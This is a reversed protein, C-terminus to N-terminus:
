NKPALLITEKAAKEVAAKSFPFLPTNGTAWDKFQDKYHPSAPNGSEGTPIVHRTLDWDGPTAIFRMSVASGVNPSAATGGSGNQALSEVAFQAGILPAATLPHSFNTKVFIGWNWDAENVTIKRSQAETRLSAFADKESARLLDKYSVFEKPLWEKPKEILLRDFFAAEYPLFLNKAQEVGFNAILIRNRFESRIRDAVLAAKSDANMRGDWNSLLKLTEESAAKQNVIEKALRSNIISFTDYQYQRVNEVSMKQNAALLNQLRPARAVTHARAVLSYYKYSKGVTRQNATMIFGSPPNYLQPMEDFPIFGTWEGDNTSGDYPLSGDGTKRLPVKGAAIWGINGQM